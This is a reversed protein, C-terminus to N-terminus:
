REIKDTGGNQKIKKGTVKMTRYNCCQEIFFKDKKKEETRKKAWRKKLLLIEAM